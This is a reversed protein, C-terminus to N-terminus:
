LAPRHTIFESNKLSRSTQFVIESENKLKKRQTYIEVNIKKKKKLYEITKKNANNGTLFRSDSM